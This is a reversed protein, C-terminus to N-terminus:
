HQNEQALRALEDEITKNTVTANLDVATSQMKPMVYNMLKEAMSFRDRPELEMFDQAMLGSDSYDSLLLSIVQKTLTTTKNPTGKARGGFKHGKPM